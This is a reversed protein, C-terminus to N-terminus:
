IYVEEPRDILSRALDVVRAANHDWTHRKSIQRAAAQGLRQRLGPDGLLRDCAFVLGELDDPSYLLGTEEHRVIEKIQGLAAAVVPVGCAMYEFLKLPSFYFDHGLQFYPALAVDFNRILPAVEQQPLSLTFIVNGMLGRDRLERELSGRLPGDGVIVLRLDRHRKVLCDLLPPLFKVGHWPKIGGVFGLIQGNGLGWRVRIEPDPPGPNFLMPDVGNSMVQVRTSDVGVSLVYDQLSASVTVVADANALVWQETQAALDGLGTARYLEQELALAANLELVLPVDLERALQVGATSYLSLREYIFDPHEDKCRRKLHSYVDRNYLIRRIENPLRSNELGLMGVFDKLYVAVSEVDTSPRLHLLPVSLQAPEEWLSKDLKPAVLVVKHGGRALATVLGRVHASGGARGLIPIGLDPCLYLIKM